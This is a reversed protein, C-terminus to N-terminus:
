SFQTHPRAQAAGDVIIDLKENYFAVVGNWSAVGASYRGLGPGTSSSQM